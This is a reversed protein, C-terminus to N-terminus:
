PAEDQQQGPAPEQGPADDDWDPDPGAPPPVIPPFPPRMEPPDFFDALTRYVDRMRLLAQIQVDLAEALQRYKAAVSNM